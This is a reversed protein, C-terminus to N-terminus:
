GLGICETCIKIAKGLVDLHGENCVGLIIFGVALVALICRYLWINRSKNAKEQRIPKIGAEKYIAIERTILGDQLRRYLIACLFALALPLGLIFTASLVDANIDEVGFHSIDAFYFLPYAFLLMLVVVFGITLHREKKRLAMADNPLSTANRYGRVLIRNDQSNKRKENPLPYLVHVVASLVLGALMVCYPLALARMAQAISQRTFAREGSQYISLINWITLAGCLLLMVALVWGIIRHLNQIKRHDLAIGDREKIIQTM